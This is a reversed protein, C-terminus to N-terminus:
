AFDRRRVHRHEKGPVFVDSPSGREEIRGESLVIVDDCLHVIEGITHTVYVMPIGFEDRVRAMCRLLRDRLPDDLGALPEDLLLLRPSALLARGLAVRQKEGGSLGGISRNILHAIELVDIVHDFALAATAPGSRRRGFELNDRVSLHPFLAGEQPVYGVERYEPRVFRRQAVDTVVTDGLVVRGAAPRRLGAIIELLSTKGSGSAGFVATVRGNLCAEVDLTFHALPLRLGLLEIRM